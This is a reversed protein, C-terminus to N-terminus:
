LVLKRAIHRLHVDTQGTQDFVSTAIVACVNLNDLACV